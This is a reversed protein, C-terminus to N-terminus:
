IEMDPDAEGLKYLGTSVARILLGGACAAWLSMAALCIAVHRMRMVFGAGNVM